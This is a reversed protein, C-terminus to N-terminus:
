FLYKIGKTKASIPLVRYVIIGNESRSGRVLKHVALFKLINLYSRVSIEM